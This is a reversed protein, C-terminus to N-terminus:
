GSTKSLANFMEQMRHHYLGDTYQELYRQRGALGMEHARGPDNALAIIAQALHDVDRPEVLLGTQGDVVVSQLGRWRSAIVPLGHQMAEVAVLSFSEAEFFTPICFIDAAQYFGSMKEPRQPGSFVINADLGADSIKRLLDLRYDDSYFVGVFTLCIRRQLKAPLRALAAVLDDAGKAECIMGVFLLSIKAEPNRVRVGCGAGAKDAIGNPICFAAKARFVLHDAPNHPSLYVSVDSFFYAKYFIFRLPRPLSAYLDSVGAAHFHFVTQRFLPRILSLIVIDRM